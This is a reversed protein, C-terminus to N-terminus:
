EADLEMQADDLNVPADSEDADLDDDDDEDGDEDEIDEEEDRAALVPLRRKGVPGEDVYDRLASMDRLAQLKALAKVEVQRIRERTLNMIAGVDELTTGGRDAVDLACSENMDWVELDPFNLKIAGTRASVDLFLHHKCSVYPCPRPGDVCEARTRPKYYDTEPYLMRGIELERKTMRKVSITRARVERKRRSRRQERTIATASTAPAAKRALAGEVVLGDGTEGDAENGADNGTDTDLGDFAALESDAMTAM